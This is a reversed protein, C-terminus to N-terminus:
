PKGTEPGRGPNLTLTSTHAGQTVAGLTIMTGDRWSEVLDRYHPSLPNGSQGTAIMFQSQDLAGLDYVARLSPGHRDAFPTSENAIQTGGRNLTFDDGSAPIAIAFFSGLIPIHSLLPHEFLAQHEDGWHWRSPDSGYRSALIRIASELSARLLDACTRTGPDNRRDCWSPAENLIHAVVDPHLDWYEPFLPGLQAAFLSRNFERLWWSFILPEPAQRSVVGKWHWLLALATQAPRSFAATGPGPHPLMLPLLLGTPLSLIDSQMAVSSAVSQLENHSLLGNIRQARYPAPWRAALFWPYDAAVPANNANVLHGSPPNVAHPLAEFPITGTWDYSGSWGAVPVLGNGHSRVPVLGPAYFGTTGNTDAYVFNLQPTQHFRLARVFDDWNRARNIRYLAEASTDAGSLGTFALALVQGAPGRTDALPSDDPLVPGHRTARVTVTLDPAGRRHILEDRIEFPRPGDPTLYRDRSIPDLREVFLDETDSGTSTVGWAITGNHGLVHFPVGPVTAGSLTLDPTEIRALYWTVPAQLALHPDNALIPHGTTTKEGAIVWEDSATDPGLPPPLAGAVDNLLTAFRDGLGTLDGALTVPGPSGTPYLDSVEQPSLRLLLRARLLEERFNGSLQLAELKGWVLSDAPKWPEPRYGLIHFEMPLPGHRTGLWANVGAAYAVLARQVDPALSEYSSQALRYLGLARMSRDLRVAWPTFAQPVVEAVRGAGLRRMLDMQWLRDQAHAYGLAFYADDMSQAQIRPVARGDRVIRVPAGLGAVTLTGDYSPLGTCLWWWYGGVALAPVVVGLGFLGAVIRWVWRM